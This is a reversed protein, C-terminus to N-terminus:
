KAFSYASKLLIGQTNQAPFAAGVMGKDTCVLFCVPKLVLPSFHFWQRKGLWIGDPLFGLLRDAVWDLETITISLQRRWAQALGGQVLAPMLFIGALNLDQCYWPHSGAQLGSDWNGVQWWRQLRAGVGKGTKRGTASTVFARHPSVRNPGYKLTLKPVMSWSHFPSLLDGKGAAGRQGTPAM